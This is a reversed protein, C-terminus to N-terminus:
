SQRFFHDAASQDKKSFYYYVLREGPLLNGRDLEIRRGDVGEAYLASEPFSIADNSNYVAVVVYEGSPLLARFGHLSAAIKAEERRSAALVQSGQIYAALSLNPSGAKDTLGFYRPRGQRNRESFFPLVFAFYHKVGLCYGVISKAAIQVAVDMNQRSVSQLDSDYSIWGSETIWISGAFNHADLWSRYSALMGILSDANEYSHFSFDGKLGFFDNRASIEKSFAVNAGLGGAFAGNVVLVNNGVASHVSKSYAIYNQVYRVLDGNKLLTGKLNNPENKPEIGLWGHRWRDSFKSFDAMVKASPPFRNNEIVPIDPVDLVKIGARFYENRLEDDRYLGNWRGTQPSLDRWMLRERVTRIGIKQLLAIYGSRRAPDRVIYTLAADVGFYTPLARTPVSYLGRAIGEVNIRYYGKDLNLRIKSVCEDSSVTGSDVERGTIDSISFAVAATCPFSELELWEDKNSEVVYNSLASARWSFEDDALVPHVMLASLIAAGYRRATAPLTRGFVLGARRVFRQGRANM